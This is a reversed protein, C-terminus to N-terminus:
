SSCFWSQPGEFGHDQRPHSDDGNEAWGPRQSSRSDFPDPLHGAWALGGKAKRFKKEMLRGM